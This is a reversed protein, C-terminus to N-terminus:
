TYRFIKKRLGLSEFKRGISNVIRRSLLQRYFRAESESVLKERRFLWNKLFGFLMAVGALLFPRAVLMRSVVKLLFFFKGGGVLYDIEGLMYNTRLFGIGSGEDKLHYLKLGEVHRTKWGMMQARIEDVTDWGRHAVFGGIQDFCEARIMKSAGAVHYSPMSVPKWRGRRKELYIGSAIGLNEDELFQAILEGFYNPGFDLDGDLKVIFDFEEDRVLEYGAQFARIVGSGPERDRNRALTLVTIWDVRMAHKELISSTQDRSGDDVIIWRSPKRTQQLVAKITTEVYKEEDKVPSLIVYRTTKNTSTM